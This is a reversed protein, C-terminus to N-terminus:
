DENHAVVTELSMNSEDSRHVSEQGLAKPDEVSNLARVILAPSVVLGIAALITMFLLYSSFKSNLLNIAGVPLFYCGIYASPMVIMSIIARWRMSSIGAESVTRITTWWVALLGALAFIIVLGLGNFPHTRDINMTVAFPIQILFILSFFDVIYIRTPPKELDADRFATRRVKAARDLKRLMWVSVAIPVVFALGALMLLIFSLIAM